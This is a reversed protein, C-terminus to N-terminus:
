IPRAIRHRLLAASGRRPRSRGAHGPGLAGHGHGHRCEGGASRVRAGEGQARLAPLRGGMRPDLVCLLNGGQADREEKEVEEHTPAYAGVHACWVPRTLLSAIWAGVCRRRRRGHGGGAGPIGVIWPSELALLMVGEPLADVPSSCSRPPGHGRACQLADDTTVAKGRLAPPGIQCLPRRTVLMTSSCPMAIESSSLRGPSRTVSSKAGSRRRARIM